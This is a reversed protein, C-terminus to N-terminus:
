NFYEMLLIMNKRILYNLPVKAGFNISNIKIKYIRLHFKEGFNISNIKIKFYNPSLKNEKYLSYNETAFNHFIVSESHFLLSM